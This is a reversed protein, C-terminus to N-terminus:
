ARWQPEEGTPIVSLLMEYGYLSTPQEICM